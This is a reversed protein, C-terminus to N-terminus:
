TFLVNGAHTPWQDALKLSTECVLYEIVRIDILSGKQIYHASNPMGIFVVRATLVMRVSTMPAATFFCLYCMCYCLFISSIPELMERVSVVSKV